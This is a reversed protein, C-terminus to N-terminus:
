ISVVFSFNVVIYFIFISVISIPKSLFGFLMNGFVVIFAPAINVVGKSIQFAKDFFMLFAVTSFAFLILFKWQRKKFTGSFENLENYEEETLLSVASNIYLFMLFVGMHLGSIFPYNAVGEYMYIPLIGEVSIAWVLITRIPTALSTKGKELIVKFGIKAKLAFVASLILCLPSLLAALGAPVTIIEYLFYILAIFAALILVMKFNVQQASVGQVFQM